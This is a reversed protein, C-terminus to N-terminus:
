DDSLEVNYMRSLYVVLNFFVISQITNYQVRALIGKTFLAFREKRILEMMSANPNTQSQITIVDFANTLAAALAGAITSIVLTLRFEKRAFEEPDPYKMKAM